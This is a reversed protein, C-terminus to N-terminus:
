GGALRAHTDYWNTRLGLAKLAVRAWTSRVYPDDGTLAYQLFARRYREIAADADLWEGPAEDGFAGSSGFPFRHEM